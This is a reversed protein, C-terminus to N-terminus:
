QFLERLELLLRQEEGALWCPQDKGKFQDSKALARRSSMNVNCRRGLPRRCVSLGNSFLRGSYQDFFSNTWIDGCLWGPYKETRKGWVKLRYEHRDPPSSFGPTM